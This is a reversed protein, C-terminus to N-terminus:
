SKSLSHLYIPVDTGEYSRVITDYRIVDVHLSPMKTSDIDIIKSRRAQFFGNMWHGSFRAKYKKLTTKIM